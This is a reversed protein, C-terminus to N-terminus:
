RDATLLSNSILDFMEKGIASLRSGIAM